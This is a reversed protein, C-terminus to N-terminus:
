SGTSGFGKEGRESGQLKKEEEKILLPFSIKEFIMQAIRDGRKIEFKEKGFNFLLVGVNGRYDSDIVGAGVDIGYKVAFGSRPAIRGYCNKPIIMALDTFCLAREGPNIVYDYASFLDYGAAEETGRKPTTAHESLYKFALSCEKGGTVCTNNSSRDCKSFCKRCLAM